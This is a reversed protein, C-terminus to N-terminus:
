IFVSILVSIWSYMDCIDFMALGVQICIPVNDNMDKVIVRLVFTDQTVFQGDSAQFRLVHVPTLERDLMQRLYLAGSPKVYFYFSNERSHHSSPENILYFRPKSKVEEDLDIINLQYIIEEEKSPWWNELIEIEDSLIQRKRLDMPLISEFSDNQIPSLPWLPANDNIDKVFIHVRSTNWHGDADMAMVRQEKLNGGRIALHESALTSIPWLSYTIIDQKGDSIHNVDKDVNDDQSNDDDTTYPASTKRNSGISSHSDGRNDGHCGLCIDDDIALTRLFRVGLPYDEPIDIRYVPSDFYPSCDNVDILEIRVTTRLIVAPQNGDFVTHMEVGLEYVSHTEYDLPKLAFIQGTQADIRFLKTQQSLEISHIDNISLQGNSLSLPSINTLSWSHNLSAPKVDCKGVQRDSLFDDPSSCLIASDAYIPSDCAEVLLQQETDQVTSPSLPTNLLLKGTSSEISFRKSVEQRYHKMSNPPHFIRYVLHANEEIDADYAKLQLPLYVPFSTEISPPNYMAPLLTLEYNVQGFLPRNDNMDKVSIDLKMYDMLDGGDKVCILLSYQSKVERDLLRALRITGDKADISFWERGYGGVISYALQGYKGRDSDKAPQIRNVISGVTTLESIEWWEYKPLNFRPPEWNSPELNVIVDCTTSHLGDTVEVQFYCYFVPFIILYFLIFIYVKHFIRSVLIATNRM